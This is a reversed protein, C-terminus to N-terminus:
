ITSPNMGTMGIFGELVRVRFRLGLGEVSRCGWDVDRFVGFGAVFFM